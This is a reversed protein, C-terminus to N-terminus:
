DQSARNKTYAVLGGVLGLTGLIGFGYGFKHRGFHAAFGTEVLTTAEQEFFIKLAAAVDADKNIAYVLATMDASNYAFKFEKKAEAEAKANKMERLATKKKADQENEIAKSEKEKAEERARTQEATEVNTFSAVNKNLLEAVMSATVTVKEEKDDEDKVKVTKTALTLLESSITKVVDNGGKMEVVANLAAGAFLTALLMFKNM